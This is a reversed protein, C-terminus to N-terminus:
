LGSHFWQGGYITGGDFKKKWKQCYVLYTKTKDLGNMRESFDPAYVDIFVQQETLIVMMWKRKTRVDVTAGSKAFGYIWWPSM